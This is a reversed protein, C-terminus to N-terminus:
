GNSQVEQSHEEAIQKTTYFSIQADICEDIAEQLLDRAVKRKEVTDYAYRSTIAVMNLARDVLGHVAEQYRQSDLEDM